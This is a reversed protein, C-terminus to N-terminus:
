RGCLFTFNQDTQEPNKILVKDLFWADGLGAEDHGIRIMKLDGLRVADIEFDDVQFQM